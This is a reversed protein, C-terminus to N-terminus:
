SCSAPTRYEAPVQYFIRRSEAETRIDGYLQLDTLEGAAWALVRTTLSYGLTDGIHEILEFIEQRDRRRKAFLSKTPKKLRPTKEGVLARDKIMRVLEFQKEKSPEGKLDKIHQQTLLGAAADAQIETPLDLLDFRVQVWGRSQKVLNAIDSVTVGRKYFRQIAQAEQLINLDERQINELLNLALAEEETLGEKLICPVEKWSLVQAAKHRRHGMILRFKKGPMKDWPEIMLPQQLGKDRMSQALDTVNLPSIFGRCNFNPDAFIDNVFYMDLKPAEM